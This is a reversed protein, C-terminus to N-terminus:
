AIRVKSMVQSVLRAVLTIVKAAPAARPVAGAGDKGGGSRSNAAIQESSLTAASASYVLSNEVAKKREGQERASHEITKSSQVSVGGGRGCFYKEKIRFL